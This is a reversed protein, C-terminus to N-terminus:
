KLTKSKNYTQNIIDWINDLRGTRRIIKYIINGSGMEGSRKLSEKRIGKLKDLIQRAQKGIKELKYSDTEKKLSKYLNDIKTIFKVSKEKVYKKNIIADEINSPKQIWENKNLSYQGSNNNNEKKDQVYIEVPFGYIKLGEHNIKWLEKKSNFYDEVMETKKYIKSYDIIIHIDIDSYKSWNYNAISGTLVIDEPKVWTISLEDIFDDAIDLLRLRVRSNVKGNVWIKPNLQSQIKFSSLDIDSTKFENIRNYTEEINLNQLIEERSYYQVNNGQYIYAGDIAHPMIVGKYGIKLFKSGYRKKNNAVTGKYSNYYPKSDTYPDDEGPTTFEKVFDFDLVVKNSDILDSNIKLIAKNSDKYNSYMDAYGKAIDYDSTLFVFGNNQANFISNDQIKRLGRTLISRLFKTVTGHYLPNAITIRHPNPNKGSLVKNNVIIKTFVKSQKSNLFQTFEPSNAVDYTDNYIDLSLGDTDNYDITGIIVKPYGNFTDYITDLLYETNNFKDKLTGDEEFFIEKSKTFTNCLLRLLEIITDKDNYTNLVFVYGKFIVIMDDVDLGNFNGNVYKLECIM